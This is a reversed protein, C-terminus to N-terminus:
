YSGTTTLVYTLICWYFMSTKLLIYQIAYVGVCHHIHASSYLVHSLVYWYFMSSQTCVLVIILILWYKDSCSEFCVLLVYQTEWLGVCYNNHASIRLVHRLVYLYVLLFENLGVGHNVHALIWLVHSLVFGTFCVPYWVLWRM